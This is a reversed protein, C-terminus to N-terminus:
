IQCTKRGEDFKAIYPWKSKEEKEGCEDFDNYFDDDFDMSIDYIEQKM